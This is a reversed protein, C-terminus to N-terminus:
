PLRSYVVTRKLYIHKAQDFTGDCTILILRAIPFDGFVQEIPFNNYDYEEVQSVVFKTQMNNDGISIIDDGVKLTHLNYFVAPKGNIDDFHGAMVSNGVEGPRYGLNYWAVNNVNKPVDMRQNADLGVSEVSTDVNLKPIILRQPIAARQNTEKPTPVIKNGQSWFFVFFGISSMILVVLVLLVRNM